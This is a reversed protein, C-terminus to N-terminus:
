GSTEVDIIGTPERQLIAASDLDINKSRRLISQKPANKAISVHKANL